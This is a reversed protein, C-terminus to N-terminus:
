QVHGQVGWRQGPGPGVVEDPVLSFEGQAGWRGRRLTALPSCWDRGVRLVGESQRFEEACRGLTVECSQVHQQEQRSHEKQGRAWLLDLQWCM